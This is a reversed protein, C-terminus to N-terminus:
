YPLKKNLIKEVRSRLLEIGMREVVDHAFGYTLMGRAVDEEIGRSLLYFLMQEDLQGVTAGHSCKVDDAYIELQPKTDVEADPSLLLNSNSQAADTKQANQHVHVQGNFVARSRGGLVGKYFEQSTGHPKKHDILTHFDVHQRGSVIYLGNLECNAGEADLVSNIDNRVLAGGTSVSHSGFRSDRQQQVQLTAVHYAKLSEQQLKYHQVAANDELLVETIVNNLYTSDGLSIYGEIVTAQSHKGAVVLNRIHFATPEGQATSVYLLYIPKEVVTGAELWIVAGDDMFATNLAAFGNAEADALRALSSELAQPSNKMAEVLSTLKVGNPLRGPKSLQPTYRGNVFVLRHSELPTLLAEGLDEEVLGICSEAPLRFAHKQIPRVNTYKWNEDRISPFGIQRFYEFAQERVQQLWAVDQGPLRQRADQFQALYHDTMPTVANM